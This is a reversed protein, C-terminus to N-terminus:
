LGVSLSEVVERDYMLWSWFFIFADDPENNQAREYGRLIDEVGPLKTERHSRRNRGPQLFSSSRRRKNSPFSYSSQAGLISM